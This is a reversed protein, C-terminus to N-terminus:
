GWPGGVSGLSVIPLTSLGVTALVDTGVVVVLSDIDDVVVEEDEEGGDLVIM